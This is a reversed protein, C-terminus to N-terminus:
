VPATEALAKHRVFAEYWAALRPHSSRWPDSGFRFDLYGLACAVTISGIDVHTHPPAAELADVTRAIAAKYRAMIADRADERPRGQEGRWPVAADLIGDGLSQLKLARWRPAGHGPFLPPEDGLSDLYECILQSGFLSLGDDTVLCPVKSLSNDAVLDAPSVHPNSAHREIRGDLGRAIACAVVKRVFPSTQSYYLKM